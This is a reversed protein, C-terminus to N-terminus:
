ALAFSTVLLDLETCILGSSIAKFVELHVIITDLFRAVSLKGPGDVRHKALVLASFLAVHVQRIDRYLLPLPLSSILVRLIYLFRSKSSTSPESATPRKM